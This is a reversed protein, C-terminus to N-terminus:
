WRGTLARFALTGRSRFESTGLTGALVREPEARAQALLADSRWGALPISLLTNPLAARQRRLRALRDMAEAALAAIAESGTDPLAPRERRILEPVALYWVALGSATAFDRLLDAQQADAGLLHGGLWGLWGAGSELHQWLAAEDAFPEAWIDWRRAEIMRDLAMGARRDGQLFGCAELVPHNRTGRGEVLDELADRWWQLRMEAVLPETSAWAARAVELNLAYLPWLRAQAADPAARTVTHRDPDGERVLEICHELGM